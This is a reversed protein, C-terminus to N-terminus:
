DYIKITIPINTFYPSSPKTGDHSWMIFQVISTTARQLTCVWLQSSNYNSTSLFLKATSPFAGTKTANFTGEVGSVKSWQIDNPNIGSGDGITNVLQTATVGSSNYTLLATYESYNPSGGGSFGSAAASASIFTPDIYSATTATGSLSGTFGASASITGVTLKNLGPNYLFTSDQDKYIDSNDDLNLNDTFIVKYDGNANIKNTYIKGANAANLALPVIGDVNAGAVYSATQATEVYSATQATEVYSATTATGELSGTFSTATLSGDLTQSSNNFLLSDTMNILNNRVDAASIDGSTNDALQTNISLQLTAKTQQSM